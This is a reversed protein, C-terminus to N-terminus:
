KSAMTGFSKMDNKTIPDFFEVGGKVLREEVFKESDKGTWIISDWSGNLM